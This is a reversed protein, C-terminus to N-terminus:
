LSHNRDPQHGLYRHELGWIKRPLCGGVGIKIGGEERWDTIRVEKVKQHDLLYHTIQDVVSFLDEEKILLHFDIDLKVILDLPVSGVLESDGFRNLFASLGLEEVIFLAEQKLASQEPM